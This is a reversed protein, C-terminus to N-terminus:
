CNHIECCTPLLSHNGSTTTMVSSHSSRQRCKKSSHSGVRLVQCGLLDLNPRRSSSCGKRSHYFEVGVAQRHDGDFLGAEGNHADGAMAVLRM